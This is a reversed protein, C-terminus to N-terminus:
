SILGRTYDGLRPAALAFSVMMKQCRLNCQRERVVVLTNPYSAYKIKIDKSSQKSSFEVDSYLIRMVGFPSILM